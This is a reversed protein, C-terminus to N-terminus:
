PTRLLSSLQIDCNTFKSNRLNYFIFFRWNLNFKPFFSLISYVILHSVEPARLALNGGLYVTDMDYRVRWTGTALACGFDSLVLHPVDDLHFIKYHIHLTSPSLKQFDNRFIFDSSSFFFTPHLQSSCSIRFLSVLVSSFNVM